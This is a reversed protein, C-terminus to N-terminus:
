PLVEWFLREPMDIGFAGQANHKEIVHVQRALSRTHPRPLVRRSLVCTRGAAIETQASRPVKSGGGSGKGGAKSKGSHGTKGGVASDM